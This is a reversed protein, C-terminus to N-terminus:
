YFQYLGLQESSDSCEFYSSIRPYNIFLGPKLSNIGIMLHNQLENIPWFFECQNLEGLQETVM